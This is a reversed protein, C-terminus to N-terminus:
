VVIQGVGRTSKLMLINKLVSYSSIADTIPASDPKIGEEAVLGGERRGLVVGEEAM